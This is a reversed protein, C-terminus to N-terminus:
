LLESAIDLLSATEAGDIHASLEDDSERRPSTDNPQIMIRDLLGSERLAQISIVRLKSRIQEDGWVLSSPKVNELELKELMLRAMARATPYDFALTTPLKTGVQGSLRNRLEVAMLSDLGLEKLPQDAQVSSAGPLALVAAIEGQALEVLAALREAESSLAALRARLANTDGSSASARKLGSRLLGRYLAPVDEAFQRQMVGLDLRIPVLVAEPQAQAADLLALGLRPSLAQVGQRRMRLLEARGLHATMGVGRQEWLGWMLSQGALGRHRREAALADLFVNAAAYNAQGPSGLGAVSSFLVFAALDLDATLEHLHCAGDLKPGLVRELREPTLAPVIGDDLLAALHFVGTLPHEAAVGSLVAGVADRDGVDCSVVEVTQAGLAQLEAVLEPAGPTQRGRRSTLLLHRVGHGAVLHRAVEGGLEGVGGTILVTGDADLRRPLQVVQKGVHRGQAMQRLAAPMQRVDYAVYPLAELVGAEFLGMLQKLLAQMREPAEQMLVFAQYSVGRYTEAIAGPDRVDALGMELFRGGRPLLRLSAEVFEGTLANLVVDVGRGATASLFQTEFSLDRSSAIHRGDLGMRELVPWKPASATGYVEAGFHRCLQVAAMGVGGAAAHVLVREGPQVQGLEQLAYLATLYALPVTAAAEFSMGAPVKAVLEALTVARTGFCGLGLGFVRDGVAISRVDAGVAEVVGAFEFGIGPSAIQGLTILVDRFNMGAARVGVRIQGPALPESLEVAAVLSVGDLRGPGTVAVRYDQAAVPAQLAGAATGARALRPALVSGHRLALEPEAQTSLLKGLLAADIVAADVDVLQLRRDPHEARASRVLGWLPARSLGSAGEDPGTAVAGSTLWTVKTENLRAEGLIGQLEELGRTAAAHAAAVLSGDPEAVHDFVIQSPVGAGADLRAVLAAVSDAHALGLRAALAGDGGVMLPLAEPGAESLGVARWELRYLHQAESRSAERIQAESAERLLLGGVRAVARGHGDALQLQALAEGEGSREVSARIRLERAGTAALSVESWEFPLLLSGESGGAGAVRDFSLVHLASDLLAPHLGYEDASSRLAEALVARGYVADGVRWAEVLGQFSPGYGYGRGALAAYHGTLDIPEGGVPPWIELGTEEAAAEQEVAESALVGQAHLRWSAGEAADEARSYISLGRSGELRGEEGAEPGDLQVQLRVAGESPLVLPSVLTLQSVVSLGVARAAAFALELLGTGPLLVTDFM